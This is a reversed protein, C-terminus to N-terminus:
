FPQKAPLTDRMLEKLKSQEEEVGGGGKPNMIYQFIKCNNFDSIYRTCANAYKTPFTTGCPTMKVTLQLLDKRRLTQIKWTWALSFFRQNDDCIPRISTEGTTKVTPKMRRDECPSLELNLSLVPLMKREEIINTKFGVFYDIEINLENLRKIHSMWSTRIEPEFM